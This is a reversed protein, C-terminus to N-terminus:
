LREEPAEVAGVSRLRLRQPLAQFALRAARELALAIARIADLQLAERLEPIEALRVLERHRPLRRQLLERRAELFLVLPRVTMAAVVADDIQHVKVQDGAAQRVPRADGRREFVAAPQAAFRGLALHEEAAVPLRRLNDRAVQHALEVTRRHDM